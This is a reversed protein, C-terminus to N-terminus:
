VGNVGQQATMDFVANEAGTFTVNKNWIKVQTFSYTGDALAIEITNVDTTLASNLADQSSVSIAAIINVNTATCNEITGYTYGCFEGYSESGKITANTVDCNKITDGDNQYGIVAAARTGSIVANTVDCNDIVTGGSIYGAVAGAHKGSAVTVNDLKLNKITTPNASSHNEIWGFLGAAAADKRGMTTTDVNLNSITYGNGDFSGSFTTSGTSGIPTWNFGALDINATLEVTKGLFSNKEVNVQKAFYLLSAADSILITGDEDELYPAAADYQNNFSDSESTYQTAVVTVGLQISPIDTGNHNASNDVDTPMYVILAYYKAAVNAEMNESVVETALNKADTVAALAKERDAYTTDSTLEVLDYKLVKSLEINNGLVSKGVVENIVNVTLDYKLALSGNNEVKLYAVETYGPEWLAADDFLKSSSSVETWSTVTSNKYSVKIDLNGSKITNVGTTATDTFWAFTSGILMTLCIVISLVSAWLARKTSKSNTM